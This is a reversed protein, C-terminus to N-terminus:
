FRPTEIDEADIEPMFAREIVGQYRSVEDDTMWAFHSARKTASLVGGNLRVVRIFLAV